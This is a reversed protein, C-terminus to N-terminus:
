ELGQTVGGNEPAPLIVAAIIVQWLQLFSGQATSYKSMQSTNM